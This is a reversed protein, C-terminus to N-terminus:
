ILNFEYESKIYKMITLIDNRYTNIIYTNIGMSSYDYFMFNDYEKLKYYLEIIDNIGMNHNVLGNNINKLSNLAKKKLKNKM